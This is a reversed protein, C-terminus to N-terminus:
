RQEALRRRRRHEREALGLWPYKIALRNYILNGAQKFPDAREWSATEVTIDDISEVLCDREIMFYRDLMIVNAARTAECCHIVRFYGRKGEAWFRWAQEKMFYVAGRSNELTTYSTDETRYDLRPRAAPNLNQEIWKRMVSAESDNPMTKIFTKGGCFIVMEPRQEEIVRKVRPLYVNGLPSDLITGYGNVVVILPKEHIQLQLCDIWKWEM